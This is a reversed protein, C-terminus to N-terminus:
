VWLLNIIFYISKVSSMGEGHAVWIGLTSKAMGQLMIAPSEDIRVTTFRSEYRGSDNDGLFVNASGSDASGARDIITIYVFIYKPTAQYRAFLLCSTTIYTIM